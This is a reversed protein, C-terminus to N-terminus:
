SGLGKTTDSSHLSDSHQYNMPKAQKPVATPGKIGVHAVTCKLFLFAVTRNDHWKSDIAAFGVTQNKKKEQGAFPHYEPCTDNEPNCKMELGATSIETSGCGYFFCVFINFFLLTKQSVCTKLKYLLTDTNTVRYM